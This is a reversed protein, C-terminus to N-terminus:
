KRCRACGELEMAKAMRRASVTKDEIKTMTKQRIM